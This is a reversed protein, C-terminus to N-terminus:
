QAPRLHHGKHLQQWIWVVSGNIAEPQEHFFLPQREAMSEAMTSGLREGTLATSECWDEELEQVTHM